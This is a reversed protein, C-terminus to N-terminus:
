VVEGMMDLVYRKMLASQSIDAYPNAALYQLPTVDIENKNYFAKLGQRKIIGHIIETIPNYSSCARHLAFEDTDGNINKIWQNVENFDEYNGYHNTEFHSAEVLATRAIVNEDLQTHQPVSLIILKTCWGFAEEDIETCSSPIFISTLSECFLFAQVGIFELNRSLRIFELSKCFSFAINEIRKVTDAMIVMEINECGCFTDQPIVEVGVLVVIVEWSDREERNYILFEGTHEDRVKEGNWFLTKKGNHMRVGPGLAVIEAWRTLKM